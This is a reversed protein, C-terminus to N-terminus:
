QSPNDSINPKSECTTQKHNVLCQALELSSVEKRLRKLQERLEKEKASAGAGSEEDEDGGSADSSEDESRPLLVDDSGSGSDDAAGGLSVAPWEDFERRDGDGSM